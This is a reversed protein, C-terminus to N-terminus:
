EQEVAERQEVWHADHPRDEHDGDHTEVCPLHPTEVREVLRENRDEHDIRVHDLV